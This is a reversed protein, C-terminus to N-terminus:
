SGGAKLARHHAISAQTDAEFQARDLTIVNGTIARPTNIRADRERRLKARKANARIHAPQLYETSERRHITVAMRADEFNLDGINEQWELLVLRDVQRNDGLQIKAVVQKLEDINV